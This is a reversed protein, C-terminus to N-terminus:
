VLKCVLIVAIVAVAAVVILITAERIRNREKKKGKQALKEREEKQDKKELVSLRNRLETVIRDNEHQQEELSKEVCTIRSDMKQIRRDEESLLQNIEGRLKNQDECLGEAVLTMESTFDEVLQATNEGKVAKLANDLFKKPGRIISNNEDSMKM